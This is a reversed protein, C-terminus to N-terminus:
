NNKPTHEGDQEMDATSQQALKLSFKPDEMAKERLWNMQKDSLFYKEDVSPELIDSLSSENGIRPFALIDATLANGNQFIGWTRWRNSSKRSRLEKMTVSSDGSTKLSYFHLNKLKRSEVYRLSFRVVRRQSVRGTVRWVLRNALFDQVFSTLIPSRKQISEELTTQVIGLKESDTNMFMTLTSAIIARGSASTDEQEKSDSDSGESGASSTSSDSKM